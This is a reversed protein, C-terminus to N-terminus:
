GGVEFEEHFEALASLNGFLPAVAEYDLVVKLYNASEKTIIFDDKYVATVDNVDLRKLIASMVKRKTEREIDVTKEVAAMANMIKSHEMYLPGVKFLLLLLFGGIGLLLSLTILTLGQERQRYYKM